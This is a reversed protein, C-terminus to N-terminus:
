KFGLMAFLISESLGLAIILSPAPQVFIDIRINVEPHVWPIYASENDAAGLERSDYETLAKLIIARRRCGDVLVTGDPAGGARITEIGVINRVCAVFFISSVFSPLLSARLTTLCSDDDIDFNHINLDVISESRLWSLKATVVERQM